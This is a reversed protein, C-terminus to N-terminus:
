LMSDGLYNTSKEGVFAKAVSQQDFFVGSPM